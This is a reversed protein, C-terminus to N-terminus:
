NLEQQMLLGMLRQCLEDEDIMNAWYQKLLNALKIMQQTSINLDSLTHMSQMTERFQFYHDPVFMEKDKIEMPLTSLCPISLTHKFILSQARASAMYDVFLTAEEQRISTSTIGVGLSVMLTRMANIYPVPSIDYDEVQGIWGNLGTYTNLTMSLKGELFMRDVDNDSESFYLPFAKRNHLIEKSLRVSKLLTTRRIDQINSETWQFSEGGQLLFLPWRYLSHMHFGFGYRGKDNSLQEANRILDEWTWSGDPEPINRERFHHRHYCLVLPSFVVPQLYLQDRKSFLSNLKPYVCEKTLLPLLQHELNREKIQQFQYDDLIVIDTANIGTDVDDFESIGDHIRLEITIWPYLQQFDELLKYLALNRETVKNCSLSIKVLPRSTVIRNGVSPIKKIWGEKVLIELGKRVSHDSIEFRQGLSKESPLYKGVDYKGTIMELQLQKVFILVQKDFEERTPRKRM